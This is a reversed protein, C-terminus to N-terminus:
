GGAFLPFLDVRDGESLPDDENAHHDNVMVVGVNGPIVGLQALLDAVTVEPSDFTVEQERFFHSGDDSGSPLLGACTTVTIVM